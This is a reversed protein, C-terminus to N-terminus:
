DDLKNKLHLMLFDQKSQFRKGISLRCNEELEIENLLIVSDGTKVCIGFKTVGVVEGPTGIYSVADSILSSSKIRVKCGNIATRACPGPDTIGRIFNFIRRSSWQWDIWEDGDIRRGCYFGVPHITSQPIPEVAGNYIKVLSEHLIEACAISARELITGYTDSDTIPYQKQLIIDGTDICEDVYHVTVGFDSSGNILVWNLVNRGRYFPLAGAHCNIVGFKPCKLFDRKLIQDFSMSVFIDAKYEQLKEISSASNVNKFTFFDVGLQTAWERLVSDVSNYRPVIFAIEFREDKTIKQLALHSWIGDAFYGIKM